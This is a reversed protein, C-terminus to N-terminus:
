RAVYDAYLGEYAERYDADTFLPGGVRWEDIEFMMNLGADAEVIAKFAADTELLELFKYYNSM